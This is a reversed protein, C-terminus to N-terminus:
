EEDILNHKYIFKEAPESSLLSRFTESSLNSDM